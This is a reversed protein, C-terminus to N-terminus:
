RWQKKSFQTYNILTEAGSLKLASHVGLSRSPRLQPNLEISRCWFASGLLLLTAVVGLITVSKGRSVNTTDFESALSRNSGAYLYFNLLNSESYDALKEWRYSELEPDVSSLQSINQHPIPKMTTM